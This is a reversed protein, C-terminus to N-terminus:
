FLRGDCSTEATPEHTDFVPSTVGVGVGDGVVVAEGVTVLVGAADGVGLGVVPVLGVAVGVGDVKGVSQTALTEGAIANLEKPCRCVTVKRQPLAADTRFGGPHKLTRALTVSMVVPSAAGNSDATHAFTGTVEVVASQVLTALGMQGTPNLDTFPFEHVNQGGPELGPSV